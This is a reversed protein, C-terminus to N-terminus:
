AGNAVLAVGAAAVCITFIRPRHAQVWNHVQLMCAETKAPTALYSVLPIEVVALVVVTFAVAASFQTGVPAGSALIAALAMLFEVPNTASGLGAVFAVWLFWGELANQARPPLRSFATLVSLQPVPASPDAAPVPVRTRQRSLFGVAIVAAILLVLVGTALQIHRATSSAAMTTVNQTVTLAFGSLLILVGAAAVLGTTMGGLWFVFLNLMPRRRSVLVLALCLRVPDTAAMLALVLVTGWM